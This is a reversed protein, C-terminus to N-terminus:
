LTLRMFATRGWTSSMAARIASSISNQCVDNEPPGVGDERYEEGQRGEGGRLPM